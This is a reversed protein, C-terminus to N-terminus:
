KSAPYDGQSPRPIWQAEIRGPTAEIEHGIETVGSPIRSHVLLEHVFLMSHLLFPGRRRVHGIPHMCGPPLAEAPPESAFRALGLVSGSVSAHSRRSWLRRLHEPHSDGRNLPARGGCAVRAGWRRVPRASSRKGRAAEARRGIAKGRM